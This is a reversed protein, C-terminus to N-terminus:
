IDERKVSFHISRGAEDRGTGEFSRCTIAKWTLRFVRGDSCRLEGHGAEGACGSQQSTTDPPEAHGDCMLANDRSALNFHGGGSNKLDAKGTLTPGGDSLNATARYGYSCGAILGPLCLSLLYIRSRM